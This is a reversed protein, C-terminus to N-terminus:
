ENLSESINPPSINNTILRTIGHNIGVACSHLPYLLILIQRAPEVEAWDVGDGGGADGEQQGADDHDADVDFEPGNSPSMDLIDSYSDKIQFHINEIENLLM